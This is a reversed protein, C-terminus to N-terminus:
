KLYTHMYEERIEQPVLSGGTAWPVHIANPMKHLLGMKEIYASASQEKMLQIPGWFSACASPELFIDESNVIDRMLDYIHYDELTFIGSLLHTMVGGVFGSARGVALGDAHTQGSLGFDQVCVKNQLTSAMGVLMCPAQTPEVFFVHVNDGFLQKLGFAVGGPAGGVGCPIYVFLPHEADIVIGQEEFQKKIRKAAVAYGLFLTSSNEDDVFYSTPDADSNKRGVEVAKSYDDNYEIVDAGRKRLLDKKWQKADASMHVIVHFGLAASMIGISMGLNGTSGVQIKFQSFFNKFEESAFVSYDDTEKVMGHALALDEAHKLVEYIGGRAKISGSIALHSDQKLFLRGPITTAYEAELQQKMKEIEALPSEILGNEHKTEPFIKLIFPAFRALREEADDIDKMTLEIKSLANQANELDANIWVVEKGNSVEKLLDKCHMQNWLEQNM